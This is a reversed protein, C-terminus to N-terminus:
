QPSPMQLPKSGTPPNSVVCGEKSSAAFQGDSQPELLVVLEAAVVSDLESADVVVDVTVDDSRDDEMVDVVVDDDADHGAHGVGVIVGLEVIVQAAISKACDVYRMLQLPVQPPGQPM